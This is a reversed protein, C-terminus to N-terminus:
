TTLDIKSILERTFALTSQVDNESFEDWKAHAASTRVAACSRARKAEIPTFIDSSQLRSIIEDLKVGNEEIANLRALKRVTDEFTIGIIVWAENKRNNKLYVEWHDLFTDFIEASIKSEFWKLLGNEIDFKLRKLNECISWVTSPVMWGNVQSILQSISQFYGNQKKLYQSIFSNVWGIYWDCREIHDQSLAQWNENWRRLVEWDKILLNLQQIIKENIM